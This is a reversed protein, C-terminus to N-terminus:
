ADFFVVSSDCVRCLPQCSTQLYVIDGGGSTTVLPREVISGDHTPSGSLVRTAATPQNYRVLDDREEEGMDRSRGKSADSAGASAELDFGLEM